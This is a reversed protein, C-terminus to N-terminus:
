PTCAFLTTRHWALRKRHKDTLPVPL